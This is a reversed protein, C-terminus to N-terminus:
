IQAGCSAMHLLLQAIWNLSPTSADGYMYMCVCTLTRACVRVRVCLCVDVGCACMCIYACVFSPALLDIAM